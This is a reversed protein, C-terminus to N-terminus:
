RALPTPQQHGQTADSGDLFTFPVRWVLNNYNIKDKDKVEVSRIAEQPRPFSLRKRDLVFEIIEFRVTDCFTPYKAPDAFISIAKLPQKGKVVDFAVIGQKNEYQHEQVWKGFDTAKQKMLWGSGRKEVTMSKPDAQNLVELFKAATDGVIDLDIVKEKALRFGADPTNGAVRAFDVVRVGHARARSDTKAKWSEFFQLEGGVLWYWTEPNDGWAATHLYYFDPKHWAVTVGIPPQKAAGGWMGAWVSLSMQVYGENATALRRQVEALDDRVTREDGDVQPLATLGIMAVSVIACAAAVRRSNESLGAHNLLPSM